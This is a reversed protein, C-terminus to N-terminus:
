WDKETKVKVGKVKKANIKDQVKKEQNNMAELLNKIQQPSLKGQQPKQTKNDPQGDNNDNKDDKPKGNEDKNEDGENNSEDQNDKNEDKNDQDNDGEQKDEQNQDQNDKNDEKQDEKQDKEGSEGEGQKNACEQALALNYRTEDDTPDNRLANKYAEVAKKCQQQQMLANGINHFARHRETKTEASNAAEIHRDLAEDILGSSYLANGLNYNGVVNKPKISIAKRYEMEASVFDDDVVKNGKYILDNAKQLKKQDEKIDNQTYGLTVSFFSLILVLSKFMILCRHKRTELVFSVIKKISIIM